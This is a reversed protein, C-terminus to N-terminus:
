CPRHDMHGSHKRDVSEMCITFSNGCCIQWWLCLFDQCSASPCWSLRGTVKAELWGKGRSFSSPMKLLSQWSQHPEPKRLVPVWLPHHSESDGWWLLASLGGDEM